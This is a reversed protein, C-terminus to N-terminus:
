VKGGAGLSSTKPLSSGVLAVAASIRPLLDEAALALAPAAVLRGVSLREPSHRSRWPPDAASAIAVSPPRWAGRNGHFLLEGMALGDARRM